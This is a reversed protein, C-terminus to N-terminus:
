PWGLACNAWQCDNIFIPSNYCCACKSRHPAKPTSEKQQLGVGKSNLHERHWAHFFEQHPCDQAFHDTAGCVFCHHEECQYHNIAQRIRLSLGEIIDPEPVGLNLPKPGPPLLEEEALTAVQGTPAPYRRYKDQYTDSSGQGRHMCSPQHVEMKKALTYLTDFSASAQEREPLETMAFELADQLSPALGHYFRDQALNKGQDTVQDLYSCCIM